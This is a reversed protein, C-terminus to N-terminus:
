ELENTDYSPTTPSSHLELNLEYLGHDVRELPGHERLIQLRQSIWSRSYRDSTHKDLYGTTRTQEAALIGLIERDVDLLDCEFQDVVSAPPDDM